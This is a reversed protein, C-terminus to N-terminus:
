TSTNARLPACHPAIKEIIADYSAALEMDGKQKYHRALAWAPILRALPPLTRASNDLRTLTADTGKGTLLDSADILANISRRSVASGPFAANTHCLDRAEAALEAAKPYDKEQLFAIVTLVHTRFGQYMPPLSSWSVTALEDRAKDFEGYFALTLGIVYAIGARSNPSKTMKSRYYAVAKDPTTHHFLTAIKRKRHWSSFLILPLLVGLICPGLYEGRRIAAVTGVSLLTGFFLAIGWLRLLYGTNKNM